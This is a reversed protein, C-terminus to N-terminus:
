RLKVEGAANVFLVNGVGEYGGFYEPGIRKLAEDRFGLIVLDAEGSKRSIVEKSDSDDQRCFVEINNRSIPLQGTEILDYVKQEEAKLKSEEFVAYLKIEAGEWDPHGTMVYALLIMLNASEYHART